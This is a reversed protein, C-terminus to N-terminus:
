CIQHCHHSQLLSVVAKLVILFVPTTGRLFELNVTRRAMELLQPYVGRLEVRKTNLEQDLQSELGPSLPDVQAPLHNWASGSDSARPETQLEGRNYLIGKGLEVGCDGNVPTQQSLGRQSNSITHVAKEQDTQLLM